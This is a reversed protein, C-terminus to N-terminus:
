IKTKNEHIIDGLWSIKKFMFCENNKNIINPADKHKIYKRLKFPDNEECIIINVPHNCVEFYDDFYKCDLCYVKKSLEIKM